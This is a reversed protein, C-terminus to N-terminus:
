DRVSRDESPLLLDELFFASLSARNAVGAKRYVARAQERVTRESTGRMAAIEKLGLGKLLLLGIEAEAPSLAWQDFQEMIAQALGQLTERYQKRWREAEQRTTTLRASLAKLRRRHRLLQTLLALMASGSIALVASEILVHLRDVGEGYDSMLDWGVLVFILGFVAALALSARTSRPDIQIL